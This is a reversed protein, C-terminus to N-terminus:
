YWSGELMEMFPPKSTPISSSPSLLAVRAPRGFYRVQLRHQTGKRLRTVSWGEMYLVDGGFQKVDSCDLLQQRAFIVAESMSIHKEEAQHGQYQESNSTMSAACSSTSSPAEDDSSSSSSSTARRIPCLVRSPSGPPSSTSSTSSKSTSRRKLASLVSRQRKPGPLTTAPHSSSVPANFTYTRSVFQPSVKTLEIDSGGYYTPVASIEQHDVVEWTPEPTGRSLILSPM